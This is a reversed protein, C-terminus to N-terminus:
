LTSETGNPETQELLFHKGSREAGVGGDAEGVTQPVM